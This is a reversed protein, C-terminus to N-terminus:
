TDWGAQRRLEVLSSVALGTWAVLGVVGLLRLVTSWDAQWVWLGFAIPLFLIWLIVRVLPPQDTLTNWLQDLWDPNGLLAVFLGVWLIAFNAISYYSLFAEVPNKKERQTTVIGEFAPSTDALLHARIPEM